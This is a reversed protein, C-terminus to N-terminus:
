RNGSRSTGRGSSKDSSAPRSSRSPKRAAQPTVGHVARFARTFADPSDYGYKLAVDIVKVPGSSLEKAALTLRRRRVYEGLTMGSVILFLRQFYFPSCCALKAAETFDIEGALNDEIYDLAASMREPWDM